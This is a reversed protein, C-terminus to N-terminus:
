SQMLFLKRRTKSGVPIETPELAFPLHKLAIGIVYRSEGGKEQPIMQLGLKEKRLVVLFTQFEFFLFYIGLLM